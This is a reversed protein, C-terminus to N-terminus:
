RKPEEPNSEKRAAREKFDALEKKTPPRDVKDVEWFYGYPGLRWTEASLQYEKLLVDKASREEESMAQWAEATISQLRKYQFASRQMYNLAKERVDKLESPPFEAGLIDM